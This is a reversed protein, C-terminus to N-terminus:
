QCIGHFEDWVFILVIYFDWLDCDGMLLQNLFNVSIM